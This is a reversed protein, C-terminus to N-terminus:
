PQLIDETRGDISIIVDKVTSFQKLTQTIQTRIATVKCSGGVGEEIRSSFDVKAVSNEITLKQIKVGDNISTYYGADREITMPGKLLEELAARATAQTKEIHHEVAYVSTCEQGAPAKKSGFYAKVPISNAPDFVVPIPVTDIPSGDKASYDLVELTIANARMTPLSTIQISYNGFLGTDPSNAYASGELITNKNVDLVRYNFQNEFVRAEGKIIIPLTVTEGSKPSTVIINAKETPEQSISPTQQPSVTPSITPGPETKDPSKKWLFAGGLIILVILIAISFIPWKKLM